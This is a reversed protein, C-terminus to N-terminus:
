DHRSTVTVLSLKRLGHKVTHKFVPLPFPQGTFSLATWRTESRLYFSSLRQVTRKFTPYNALCNSFSRLLMIRPQQQYHKIFLHAMKLYVHKNRDFLTLLQM